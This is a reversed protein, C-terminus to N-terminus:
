TQSSLTPRRRRFSEGGLGHVWRINELGDDISTPRARCWAPQDHASDITSISRRDDCSSTTVILTNVFQLSFFCIAGGAATPFGVLFIILGQKEKKGCRRYSSINPQEKFAIHKSFFKQVERKWQCVQYTKHAVMTERKKGWSFLLCTGPIACRDAMQDVGAAVMPATM